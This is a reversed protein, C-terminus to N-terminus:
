ARLRSAPLQRMSRPSTAVCSFAGAQDFSASIFRWGWRLGNSGPATAPRIAAGPMGRASRNCAWRGYNGHGANAHAALAHDCDTGRRADEGACIYAHPTSADFYVADGVEMQSVADGHRIELEGQLVYLFEYGAHVHPRIDQSKKLPLFEAFYPDMLRDPVM